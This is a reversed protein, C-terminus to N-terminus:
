KSYFMKGAFIIGDAGNMLCILFSSGSLRDLNIITLRDTLKCETIMRGTVDYFSVMVPLIAPDKVEVQLNGGGPNKFIEVVEKDNSPSKFGTVV